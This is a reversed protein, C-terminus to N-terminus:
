AIWPFLERVNKLIEMAMGEGMDGTADFILGPHCPSEVQASNLAPDPAGDEMPYTTEHTVPTTPKMRILKANLINNRLTSIRENRKFLERVPIELTSSLAKNFNNVHSRNEVREVGYIPEPLGCRRFAYRNFAINSTVYSILGDRTNLSGSDLTSHYCSGDAQDWLLKLLWAHLPNSIKLECLKYPIEVEANPFDEKIDERLRGLGVEVVHDWIYGDGYTTVFESGERVMCTTYVIGGIDFETNCKVTHIDENIRGLIGAGELLPGADVLTSVGGALTVDLVYMGPTKTYKGGYVGLIELPKFDRGAGLGKNDIGAWSAVNKDLVMMSRAKGKFIDSILPHPYCDTPPSIKIAKVILKVNEDNHNLCGNKERRSLETIIEEFTSTGPAPGMREVSNTDVRPKNDTKNNNEKTINEMVEHQEFDEM